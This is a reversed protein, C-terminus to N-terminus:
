KTSRVSQKYYASRLVVNVRSQLKYIGVKLGVTESVKMTLGHNVSKHADKQTKNTRDITAGLDHRLTASRSRAERAEQLAQDAEPTYPGLPDIAPINGFDSRERDASMALRSQRSGMTGGRTNYASQSTGTSIAACVLDLVRSREQLCASLRRRASDLVQLQQQVLQLQAELMRKLNFLHMREAHLLDDAGDNDQVFLM